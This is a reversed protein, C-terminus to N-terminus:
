GQRCVSLGVYIRLSVERKWVGSGILLCTLM